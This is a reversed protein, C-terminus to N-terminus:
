AREVYEGTDSYVKVSSGVKVFSPIVCRAGTELVADVYGTAKPNDGLSVVKLICTNPLRVGIIREKYKKIAVEMEDSLYLHNPIMDKDVVIEEFTELDMFVFNTGDSWSYRAQTLETQAAEVIEDSLFTKEFISNTEVNRIKARVFGGGKGRKGQTIGMVTCVNGDIVIDSSPKVLKSARDKSMYRMLFPVSRQRVRSWGHLLM